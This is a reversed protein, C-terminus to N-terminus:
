PRELRSFSRAGPSYRLCRSRAPPSWPLWRRAKLAGHQAILTFLVWPIFALYIKNGLVPDDVDHGRDSVSVGTPLERSLSSM